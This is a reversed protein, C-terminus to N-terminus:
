YPANLMEEGDREGGNRLQVIGLEIEKSRNLEIKWLVM